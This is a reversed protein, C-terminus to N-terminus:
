KAIEKMLNGVDNPHRLLGISTYMKGLLFALSPLM